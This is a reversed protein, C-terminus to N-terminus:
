FSSIKLSFTSQSLQGQSAAARFVSPVTESYNPKDLEQALEEVLKKRQRREILLRTFFAITLFASASVVAIALLNNEAVTMSTENEVPSNSCSRRCLFPQNDSCIADNWEDILLVGGQDANKVWEICDQNGGINQPTEPSWPLVNPTIFFSPNEFNGDVYQFRSPDDGEQADPDFLGLVFVPLIIYLLLFPKQVLGFAKM